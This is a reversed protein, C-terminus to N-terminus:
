LYGLDRLRQEVNEQDEKSFIGTDQNQSKREDKADGAELESLVQDMIYAVYDEITKFDSGPLRKRIRKALSGPIRLQTDEGSESDYSMSRFSKEDVSDSMSVKNGM